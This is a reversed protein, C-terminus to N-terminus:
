KQKYRKWRMNKILSDWNSLIALMEDVVDEVRLQAHGYLYGSMRIAAYDANM